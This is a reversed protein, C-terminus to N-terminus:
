RPYRITENREKLDNYRAWAIQMRNFHDRDEEILEIIELGHENLVIISLPGEYCRDKHVLFSGDPQEISIKTSMFLPTTCGMVDYLNGTSNRRQASKKVILHIM